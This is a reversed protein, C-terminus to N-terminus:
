REPRREEKDYCQRGEEKNDRWRSPSGDGKSVPGRQQMLRLHSACSGHQRGAQESAPVLLGLAIAEVLIVSSVAGPVADVDGTDTVGLLVATVSDVGRGPLRRRGRLGGHMGLWPRLELM